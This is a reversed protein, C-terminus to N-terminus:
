NRCKLSSLVETIHMTLTIHFSLASSNQLAPLLHTPRASSIRRSPPSSRTLRAETALVGGMCPTTAGVPTPPPPPPHRAPVLVLCLDLHVDPNHDSHKLVSLFQSRAMPTVLARVLRLGPSDLWTGSYVSFVPTIDTTCCTWLYSVVPFITTLLARSLITDTSINLLFNLSSSIFICPLLLM